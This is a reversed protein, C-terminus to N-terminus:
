ILCKEGSNNTRLGRPSSETLVQAISSNWADSVIACHLSHSKEGCCLHLFPLINQSCITDGFLLSHATMKKFLNIQKRIHTYTGCAAVAMQSHKRARTDPHERCVMSLGSSDRARKEHELM